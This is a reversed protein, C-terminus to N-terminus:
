STRRNSRSSHPPSPRSTSDSAGRGAVPAPEPAPGRASGATAVSDSATRVRGDLGPSWRTRADTCLVEVGDLESALALARDCRLAYFAASWAMALAARHALATATRVGNAVLGPQEVTSTTSVAWTGPPVQILALTALTNSPDVVGVARGTQAQATRPPVTMILYQGGLTLVTSDAVGALAELARDLAYGKAIWDLDLATGRPIRVAAAASDFRVRRWAHGTPDSAGESRRAVELALGLVARFAASLSDGRGTRNIRSLESNRDEVSFRSAVLRVADRAHDVAGALRASDRGWAAVSFITGMADWAGSVTPYHPGTHCATLLAAAWVVVGPGSAARLARLAQPVWGSPEVIISSGRAPLEGAWAHGKLKGLTAAM